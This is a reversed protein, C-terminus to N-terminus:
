QQQSEAQDIRQREMEAFSGFSDLVVEAIEIATPGVPFPFISNVEYKKEEGEGREIHTARQVLYTQLAVTAEERRLVYEFEEDSLHAFNARLYHPKENLPLDARLRNLFAMRPDDPGELSTNTLVYYAFDMADNRTLECGMINVVPGPEDGYEFPPWKSPVPSLRLLDRDQDGDDERPYLTKLFNKYDQFVPDGLLVPESFLEAIDQMADAMPKETRDLLVYQDGAPFNAGTKAEIGSDRLGQSM